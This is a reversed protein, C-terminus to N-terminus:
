SPWFGSESPSSSFEFSAVEEELALAVEFARRDEEVALLELLDDEDAAVLSFEAVVVTIFGPSRYVRIRLDYRGM